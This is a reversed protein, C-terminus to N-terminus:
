HKQKWITLLPTPLPHVSNSFQEMWKLLFKQIINRWGNSFSFLFRKQLVEDVLLFARMGRDFDKGALIQGVTAKAYVGSDSLLDALGATGYLNGVSAFVAMLLHMGGELPYVGEFEVPYAWVVELAKCLLGMDFFVPCSKQGLANLQEKVRKLTTYVTNYDNPAAM